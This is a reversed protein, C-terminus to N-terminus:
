TRRRLVTRVAHQVLGGLGMLVGVPILAAAWPYRLVTRAASALRDRAQARM